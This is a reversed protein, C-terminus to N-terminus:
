IKLFPGRCGHYIGIANNDFPIPGVRSDQLESFLRINISNFEEIMLQCIPMNGCSVELNVLKRLM